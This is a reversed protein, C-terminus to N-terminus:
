NLSGDGATPYIISGAADYIIVSSGTNGQEIAKAADQANDSSLLTNNVTTGTKLSISSSAMTNSSISAKGSEVYIGASANGSFYNIENSAAAVNADAGNVYIAFQNYDGAGSGYLTNRSDGGGIYVSASDYAGICINEINQFTSNLITARGSGSVKVATGAYKAFYINKFSVGDITCNGLVRLAQMIKRGSGDITLNLLDLSKGADVIIAGSNDGTLATDFAFKIITNGSGQIKLNRSVDLPSTLYYTGDSLRITDGSAAAALAGYISDDAGWTMPAAMQFGPDTSADNGLGLWPSYSINSGVSIQPGMSGLYNFRGDIVTMSNNKISTSCNDLKNYHIRANGTDTRIGILGGYIINGTISCEGANDAVWIGDGNPNAAIDNNQILNGSGAVRIGHQLSTINNESITNNDPDGAYAYPSYDEMSTLRIGYQSSDINNGRVTNNSSNSLLVAASVSGPWSSSDQAHITNCLINNYDSATLSIGYVVGKISNNYFKNNTNMLSLGSGAGEGGCAFIGDLSGTGGPISSGDISCNEITNNDSGNALYIEYDGNGHLSVNRILNKDSNYIYIGYPESNWEGTRHVAGNKIAINKIEVGSHNYIKIGAKTSIGNQTADIVTDPGQGELKLNDKSINIHERYVGAAIKITDGPGANDLASQITDFYKGSTEDYVPKVSGLLKDIISQPVVSSGGFATINVNDPMNERVFRETSPAMDKYVLVVPSSSKAALASGSLADAFENGHTGNAVALFINDFNLTNIFKQMISTNTGYRNNGCLRESGPVSNFVAQSVVDPGGVVYTKNISGNETLYQKVSDPLKYTDTLLIPMLSNAAIPSISLADPYNLGTALAIAGSNGVRQAIKVSTEYRDAGGLREVDSIGADKISNIENESVAGPGGVVIVHNVRLRKLESLADPNLSDHWTLLLPANYKQSLPAACLADPFADGRALIAYDSAQPWGKKSIAAATKYRDSGYIRSYTGAASANVPIFLIFSLVLLLCSILFLKNKKCM